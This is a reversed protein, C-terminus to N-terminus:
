TNTKTKKVFAVICLWKLHDCNQRGQQGMKWNTKRFAHGKGDLGTQRQGSPLFRVAGPAQVGALSAM